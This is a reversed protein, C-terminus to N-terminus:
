RAEPPRAKAIAARALLAVALATWLLTGPARPAYGASLLLLLAAGVQRRIPDRSLVAAVTVAAGIGLPVAYWIFHQEPLFDLRFAGYVLDPLDSGVVDSWAAMGAAVGGAALGSLMLSAKGRAERWSISVVFGVALPILLYALEGSWRFANSLRDTHEWYARRGVMTVIMSAVGSLSAILTLILTAVIALTSKWHLGVLMLLLILAHALGAVVIVLEPRTWARPLFTVLAIIPVLIWGFGVIGARASIPLRSKSSGLAVLCFSLAVLASVVGLNRAFGGWRDLAALADTSWTEHGLLLLIRTMVLDALAGAGAMWTLPPVAALYSSRNEDAAAVTAVAAAPSDIGETM